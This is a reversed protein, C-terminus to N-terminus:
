VGLGGWPKPGIWIRGLLGPGKFGLAFYFILVPDFFEQRCSPLSLWFPSPPPWLMQRQSPPPHNLVPRSPFLPPECLTVRNELRASLVPEAQLKPPWQHSPSSPLGPGEPCCLRSENKGSRKDHTHCAAIEFSEKRSGGHEGQQDDKSRQSLPTPPVKKEKELKGERERARKLM